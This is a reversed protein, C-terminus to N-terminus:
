WAWPACNSFLLNVGLRVSNSTQSVVARAHLAEKDEVGEAAPGTRTETGKEELPEGCIIAHLALGLEADVTM